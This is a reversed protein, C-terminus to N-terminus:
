PADVPATPHDLAYRAKLDYYLLTQAAVLVPLMVAAVLSTVSAEVLPPAAASASAILSPGLAMFVIFFLIGLTRWWRGRVIAASADLASWRQKEEIIIAQQALSWRVALYLTLAFPVLALWWDRRGDITADRNILWYVALAPAAVLSALALGTQLLFTSILAGFRDFAADLSRAPDARTAGSVDHAAVILAGAAILAVLLEPLLFLMSVAEQVSESDIRRLTVAHLMRLPVTVLAVLFLAAFNSFYIKWAYGIIEGLDHPARLDAAPRADM